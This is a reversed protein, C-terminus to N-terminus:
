LSKYKCKCQEIWRAASDEPSNRLYGDGFARWTNGIEDHVQLGYKGDTDHMLKAALAGDEGLEERPVRMHGSSFSDTLFHLGFATLALTRAPIPPVKESAPKSQVRSQVARLAEQHADKFAKWNHPSFHAKNALALQAYHGNTAVMSFFEEDVGKSFLPSFEEATLKELLRQQNEDKKKESLWPARSTLDPLRYPGPKDVTIALLQMESLWTKGACDRVSQVVAQLKEWPPDKWKHSVQEMIKLQGATSHPLVLLDFIMGAFRNRNHFGRIIHVPPREREKPKEMDEFDGFFDGALMLIQGISLVAANGSLVAAKLSKASWPQGNADHNPDPFIYHWHLASTPPLNGYPQLPDHAGYVSVFDGESLEKPDPHHRRFSANDPHNYIARYGSLGYWQAISELTEGRQVIHTRDVTEGATVFTWNHLDSLTSDVFAGGEVLGNAAWLDVLRQVKSGLLRHEDSNYVLVGALDGTTEFNGDTAVFNGHKDFVPLQTPFFLVIAQDDM